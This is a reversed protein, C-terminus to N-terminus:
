SNSTSLLYNWNINVIEYVANSLIEPSYKGKASLKMARSLVVWYTVPGDHPWLLDEVAVDIEEQSPVPNRRKVSKQKIKSVKRKALKKM